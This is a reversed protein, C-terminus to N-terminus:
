DLGRGVGGAELRVTTWVSSRHLGSGSGCGGSGIAAVPWSTSPLGAAGPLTSFVLEWRRRGAPLIRRCPSRLPQRVGRWAAPRPHAAPGIWISTRDRHPDGIRRRPLLFRGTREVHQQELLKARHVPPLHQGGRDLLTLRCAGLRLRDEDRVEAVQPAPIRQVAPPRVRFPRAELDAVRLREDVRVFADPGPVLDALVPAPRGLDVDDPNALVM